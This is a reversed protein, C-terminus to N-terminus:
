EAAAHMLEERLDCLRLSVWSETQDMQELEVIRDKIKTAGSHRDIDDLGPGLPTTSSKSITM